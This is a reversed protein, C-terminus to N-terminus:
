NDSKESWNSNKVIVICLVLDVFGDYEQKFYLEVCMFKKISIDIQCLINYKIGWIGNFLKTIVNLYIM